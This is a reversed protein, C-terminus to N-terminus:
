LLPLLEILLLAASVDYLLVTVTLIRFAPPPAIRRRRGGMLEILGFGAVLSVPLGFLVWGLASLTGVSRCDTCTSGRRLLHATLSLPDARQADESVAMVCGSPSVLWHGGQRRDVLAGTLLDGCDRPIRGITAQALTVGARQRYAFLADSRRESREVGILHGQGRELMLASGAMTYQSRWSLSGNTAIYDHSWGAFQAVADPTLAEVEGHVTFAARLRMPLEILLGAITLDTDQRADWGFDFGAVEFRVGTEVISWLTPPEGAAVLFRWVSAGPQRYAAQVDCRLWQPDCIREFSLWRRALQGSPALSFLAVRASSGGPSAARVIIEFAGAEWDLGLLVPWAADTVLPYPGSLGDMPSAVIALLGGDAARYVIGLQGLPGPRIGETRELELGDDAGTHVRAEGREPLLAVFAGLRPPDTTAPCSAWVADSTTLTRLLPDGGCSDRWHEAAAVGQSDLWQLRRPGTLREADSLATSWTVYAVWIAALLAIPFAVTFFPDSLRRWQAFGLRRRARQTRQYM